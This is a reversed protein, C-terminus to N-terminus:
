FQLLNHINADLSLSEPLFCFLIYNKDSGGQNFWLYIIIESKEKM